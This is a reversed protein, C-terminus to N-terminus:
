ELSAEKNDQSLSSKNVKDPPPRDSYHSQNIHEKLHTSEQKEIQCICKTSPRDGPLNHYIRRGGELGKIYKHKYINNNYILKHIKM